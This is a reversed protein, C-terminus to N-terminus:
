AHQKAYIGRWKVYGFVVIVVYLMFLMSTLYLEKYFYQYAAVGDVVIWYLWNELIKRTVLITVLLSFITTFSDIFPLSANTYTFLLYGVLVTFLLGVGIFLAHQKVTMTTIAIEATYNRKNWYYWGYISTGVYYFQLATEAYLRAEICIFIYIVVSVLGAPWCWINEKAALYIYVLGFTVGAAELWSLAQLSQMIEQSYDM